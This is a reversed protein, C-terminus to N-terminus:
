RSYLNDDNTEAGKILMEKPIRVTIKTGKKMESEVNINGNFYETVINHIHALGLGTSMKGTQSDYKTTYGPKFIVEMKDGPIGEGTDTVIFEIEDDKFVTEIAIKGYSKISDISNITLNNLISIISYFEDTLFMQDYHVSLIINKNKSKILKLVNDDVINLIDKNSMYKINTDSNFVSNMGTSVRLYDKKIEHIDKAIKLLPTKVKEDNAAEYHHHTYAVLEEINDRSKKLFFLETKLKSILMISERYYKDRESEQFKNLYYKIWYYIALIATTRLAGIFIVQNIVTNFDFINWVRRISAEIINSVSDVVWLNLFAILPYNLIERIKLIKFFIGYFFYYALIPMFQLIAKYFEVDHRLYFIMSRFLCTSLGVSMCILLINYNNFYILFLSLFFVVLAFRFDTNFPNIYFQGM